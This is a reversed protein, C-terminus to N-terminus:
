LGKEERIQFVIAFDGKKQGRWDITKIKWNVKKEMIVEWENGMLDIM